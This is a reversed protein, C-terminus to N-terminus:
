EKILPQNKLPQIRGAVVHAEYWDVLVDTTEPGPLKALREAALAWNPLGLLEEAASGSQCYRISYRTVQYQYWYMQDDLAKQSLKAM